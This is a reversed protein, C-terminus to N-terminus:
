ARLPGPCPPRRRPSACPARYRRRARGCHSSRAAPTPRGRWALWAVISSLALVSAASEGPACGAGAALGPAETDEQFEYAGMDFSVGSPRPSGEIDETLPTAPDGADICPSSASLHYDGGVWYDDSTDAPTGNDHWYGPDIFLPDHAIDDEGINGEGAWGGRVCSYSVGAIYGTLNQEGSSSRNDWLICSSFTPGPWTSGYVGDPSNGLFTSFEISVLLSDSGGARIGGGYQLCTNGTLVCNRLVVSDGDGGSVLLGGGGVRAHNGSFVCAYFEASGSSCSVAGGSGGVNRLFRCDVVSLASVQENYMGGGHATVVYYEDGASNDCFVCNAVTLKAVKRNLMGGGRHDLPDGGNANGRTVEFGDLRANSAGVVVHYCEDEGDLTTVHTGWDRQDRATETGIFGGYISVGDQMALVITDAAQRRTYVASAVWVEDGAHAADVADQPHRFATEWSLGDGGAPADIKVHFISGKKGGNGDGNCGCVLSLAGLAALATLSFSTPSRM